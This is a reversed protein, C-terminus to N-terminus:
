AVEAMEALMVIQWQSLVIPARPGDLDHDNLWQDLRAEECSCCAVETESKDLYVGHDECVLDGCEICRGIPEGQCCDSYRADYNDECLSARSEPERFNLM